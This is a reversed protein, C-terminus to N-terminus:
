QHINHTIAALGPASMRPKSDDRVKSLQHRYFQAEADTKSQDLMVMVIFIEIEATDLVVAIAVKRASEFSLNKSGDTIRKLFNPSKFGALASFKRYTMSFESSRKAALFWHNLFTRYNEYNSLVPSHVEQYAEM